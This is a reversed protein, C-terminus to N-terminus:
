IGQGGESRSFLLSSLQAIRQALQEVITADFGTKLLAESFGRDKLANTKLETQLHMVDLRMQRLQIDMETKKRETIIQGGGAQFEVEIENCMKDLREYEDSISSISQSMTKRGSRGNKNRENKGKCSGLLFVLCLIGVLFGTYIKM